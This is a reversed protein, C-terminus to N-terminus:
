IPEAPISLLVGKTAAVTSRNREPETRSAVLQLISEIRQISREVREMRNEFAASSLSTSDDKDNGSRNPTPVAHKVREQPHQSPHLFGDGPIRSQWETLISLYHVLIVRAKGRCVDMRAHQITQAVNEKSAELEGIAVGALLALEQETLVIAGESISLSNPSVDQVHEEDGRLRHALDRLLLLVSATNPALRVNTRGFLSEAVSPIDGTTGPVSNSKVMADMQAKGREWQLLSSLNEECDGLNDLARVSWRMLMQQNDDPLSMRVDGHENMSIGKNSSSRVPVIPRWRQVLSAREETSILTRVQTGRTLIQIPAPGCIATLLLSSLSYTAPPLLSSQLRWNHIVGADGEDLSWAHRTNWGLLLALKELMGYTSAVRRAAALPIWLETCPELGALSLDLLSAGSSLRRVRPTSAGSTSAANQRPAPYHQQAAFSQVPQCLVDAFKVLGEVVTEGSAQCLAGFSVFPERFEPDLLRFITTGRSDPSGEKHPTSPASSYAADIRAPIYCAWAPTLLQQQQAGIKSNARGQSGWARRSPLLVFHIPLPRRDSLDEWTRPLARRAGQSALNYGEM